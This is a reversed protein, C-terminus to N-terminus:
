AVSIAPLATQVAGSLIMPGSLCPVGTATQVEDIGLRSNAVPGAVAAVCYKWERLSRVGSECSVSDTAAYLVVDISARFRPDCLLARTERQFIGDAIEYVLFEPRTERLTAELGTAIAFVEDPSCGATSAHGLDTFDLVQVAGADWLIGPDKRCATGTIKAAAVRHGQGTLSRIVHAATTTKGANMSAGVVLISRPRPGAGTNRRRLGFEKLNLPQGTADALAGIWEVTTPDPMRDNRSVVEGCVGGVGLVHGIPGTAIARGEYQDTAYRNGLAGAIVDGPFLMMRRGDPAEVTTHRGIQQVRALVLLGPTEERAMPGCAAVVARDVRHTVYGWKIKLGGFYEM